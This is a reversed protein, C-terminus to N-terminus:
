TARATALKGADKRVHLSGDTVDVFTNVPRWHGRLVLAAEGRSWWEGPQVRSGRVACTQIQGEVCERGLTDAVRGSVEVRQLGELRSIGGGDERWTLRTTSAM